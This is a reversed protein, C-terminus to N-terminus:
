SLLLKNNILFTVKRKILKHKNVYKTISVKKNNGYYIYNENILIIEPYYKYKLKTICNYILSIVLNNIIKSEHKNFYKCTLMLSILDYIDLYYYFHKLKFLNTDCFEFFTTINNNNM